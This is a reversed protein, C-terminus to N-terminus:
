SLGKAQFCPHTLPAINYFRHPNGKLTWFKRAHKQLRIWQSETPIGKSYMWISRIQLSPIFFQTLVWLIEAQRGLSKTSLIGAVPAASGTGEM